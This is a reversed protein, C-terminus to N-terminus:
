KPAVFHFSLPIFSRTPPFCLVPSNMIHKATDCCKWQKRELVRERALIQERGDKRKYRTERKIRLSSNIFLKRWKKKENEKKLSDYYRSCYLFSVIHKGDRHKSSEFKMRFAPCVRVSRSRKLASSEDHFKMLHLIRFFSRSGRAIIAKYIEWYSLDDMSIRLRITGALHNINKSLQM